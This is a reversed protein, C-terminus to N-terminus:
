EEIISRYDRMFKLFQGVGIGIGVLVGIVIGWVFYFDSTSFYIVSGVWAIAMPILIVMFQLHRKKYFLALGSVESVSMTSCDIRSIGNYLWRDMISCILFYVASFISIWLGNGSQFIHTNIWSPCCLILVLAIRSFRLYRNALDQLATRRNGKRIDDLNDNRGSYFKTEQWCKKINDTM